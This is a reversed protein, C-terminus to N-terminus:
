RIAEIAYEIEEVGPMSEKGNTSKVVNLGGVRITPTTSVDAKRGARLAEELWPTFRREAVCDKIDDAGAEKAYALLEDDSLGAGGQAPQHEMLLGHMKAYANSGADDAVCVAANSARQAYEDTSQELLFIFPYYTLTIEGAEARETLFTGAEQHFIKCSPCLFDEYVAVAIPGAESEKAKEPVLTFGYDETANQPVAIGDDEPANLHQIWIAAAVGVIALAVVVTVIVAYRRQARERGGHRIKDALAQRQAAREDM